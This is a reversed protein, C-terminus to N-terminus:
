SWQNAVIERLNAGPMGNPTKTSISSPGSSSTGSGMQYCLSSPTLATASTAVTGSGGKGPETSHSMAARKDATLYSEAVQLVQTSWSPIEDPLQSIAFSAPVQSPYSALFRRTLEDNAPMDAAIPRSKVRSDDGAFSLLDAVVNLEGKLHQSALCCRFDILLRAIKRAVQLHAKHADWTTDLRLSNHLWGIASTNDGIALICHEGGASALCSLWINIAMGLFELLNNIGQNGLSPAIGQFAFNGPEAQYATGESDM